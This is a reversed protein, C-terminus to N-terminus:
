IQLHRHRLYTPPDHSAQDPHRDARLAASPAILQHLLAPTVHVDSVQITPASAVGSAVPHLCCDCTRQQHKAVPAPRHAAHQAPVAGAARKCCQHARPTSECCAAAVSAWPVALIVALALCVSIRNLSAMTKRGVLQPETQRSATAIYVTDDAIGSEALTSTTLRRWATPRRDRKQTRNLRLAVLSPCTSSSCPM